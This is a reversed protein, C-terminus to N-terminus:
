VTVFRPLCCLLVLIFQCCLLLITNRLKILGKNFKGFRTLSRQCYPAIPWSRAEGKRDGVYWHWLQRPNQLFINHIELFRLFVDCNWPNEDFIWIDTMEDIKLAGFHVFFSLFNALKTSLTPWLTSYDINQMYFIELNYKSFGYVCRSKYALYQKFCAKSWRRRSFLYTEMLKQVYVNRHSSFQRCSLYKKSFIWISKVCKASNNKFRCLWM